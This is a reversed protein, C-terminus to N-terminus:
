ELFYIIERLSLRRSIGGPNDKRALILNEFTHRAIKRAMKRARLFVDPFIGAHFKRRMLESLALLIQV